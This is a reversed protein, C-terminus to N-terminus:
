LKQLCELYDREDPPMNSRQAEWVMNALCEMMRHEVAHADQHKALLKEYIARVGVPQDINVQERISIHLGMHLFPNTEGMEPLYDKDLTKDTDDLQSHYEPHMAVIDAILQELPEMPQRAQHKQWANFFLQRMQNRDQGFIM